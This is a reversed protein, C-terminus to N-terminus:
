AAPHQDVRQKVEAARGPARRDARGQHLRGAQDVRDRQGAPEAVDEDDLRLGHRRAPARPLRRLRDGLRQARSEGAVFPIFKLKSPKVQPAEVVPTKHLANWRLERLSIFAPEGARGRLAVLTEIANVRGHPRQNCGNTTLAASAASEHQSSM